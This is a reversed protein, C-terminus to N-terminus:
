IRCLIQSEYVYNNIDDPEHAWPVEAVMKGPILVKEETGMKYWEYENDLQGIDIAQYGNHALEYALVTATPGLSILILDDPSIHQMVCAYIEDYAAFANSQPCLIRKIASSTALLDNNVGIRSTEGEVLIVNRQKWVEKWLAFIQKAYIKDRYIVYPRSVYADYYVRDLSLMKMLADRTGGSTMYLRIADAAGETYLDLNGFNNAIGICIRQDCFDLIERLRESLRRSTNQFWSRKHMRILEFEGDGFRSLSCHTDIIKHLLTEASQIRPLVNTVGYEFPANLSRAMMIREYNRIADEKIWSNIKDSDIFPFATIDDKWFLIIKERPLGYSLYTRLIGEGVKATVIVYDFETKKLISPNQVLFGYDKQLREHNKDLFGEIICSDRKVARMLKVHSAGLGWIYVHPKYTKNAIVLGHRLEPVIPKEFPFFMYGDTFRVTFHADLLQMSLNQADKSRHYACALIRLPRNSSLVKKAGQLAKTEAGEIDMKIFTIPFGMEDIEDLTISGNRKSPGLFKPIIEVKDKYPAFTYRLTEIWEMSAEVLYIKKCCDVWDLAFFGEAAGADVLVEDKGIPEMNSYSHPSASDQEVAINMLYGSAEKSNMSRKLYIRKGHWYSYYLGSTEDFSIDFMGDKGRYKETLETSFTCGNDFDITNLSKLLDDNSSNRYKDMVKNKIDRFCYKVTHIMESSIGLTDILQQRMEKEYKASTIIIPVDEIYHPRQVLFEQGRFNIKKEQLYVSSDWIEIIKFMGFNDVLEAISMFSKGMGFLIIPRM